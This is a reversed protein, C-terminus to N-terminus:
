SGSRGGVKRLRGKRSEAVCNKLDVLPEGTFILLGDEEKLADSNEVPRIVIGQVDKEIELEDGPRLQFEDRISKPIVIRGFRDLMLRM